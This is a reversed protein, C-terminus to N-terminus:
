FADYLVYLLKEIYRDIRASSARVSGCPMCFATEIVNPQHPYGLENVNAKGLVLLAM